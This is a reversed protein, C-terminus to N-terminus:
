FQSVMNYQARSWDLQLLHDVFTTLTCNQFAIVSLKDCQCFFDVKFESQTSNSRALLQSLMRAVIDLV